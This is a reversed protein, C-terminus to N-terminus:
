KTPRAGARRKPRRRRRSSSQEERLLAEVRALLGGVRTVPWSREAVLLYARCARLHAKKAVLAEVFSLTSPTGLWALGKGRRTLAKLAERVDRDHGAALARLGDCDLVVCDDHPRTTGAEQAQRYAARMRDYEDWENAKAALELAVPYGFLSPDTLTLRQEIADLLDSPWAGVMRVHMSLDHASAFWAPDYSAWTAVAGALVDRLAPLESPQVHEELLRRCWYPDSPDEALADLVATLADASDLPFPM